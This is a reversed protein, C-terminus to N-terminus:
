RESKSPCSPLPPNTRCSSHPPPTQKLDVTTPEEIDSQRTEGVEDVKIEGVFRYGKRAVTRVLRQEEGTDGIAKRVANIHSTITSESVIRGSWVAKLLDDKSMVRDRNSVLQLLLDFVQPGVTVVQGRLTLERRQQDLVYDEFVFPL